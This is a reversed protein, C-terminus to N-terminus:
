IFLYIFYKNPSPKLDGYKREYHTRLHYQQCNKQWCIKFSVSSRDYQVLNVWKLLKSLEVKPKMEEENSWKKSYDDTTM